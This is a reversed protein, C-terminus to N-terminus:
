RPDGPVSPLSDFFKKGVVEFNILLIHKTESMYKAVEYLKAGTVNRYVLDAGDIAGQQM